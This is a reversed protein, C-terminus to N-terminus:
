VNIAGKYLYGKAIRGKNMDGKKSVIQLYWEIANALQYTQLYLRTIKSVERLMLAKAHSCHLLTENEFELIESNVKNSLNKSNLLLTSLLVNNHM